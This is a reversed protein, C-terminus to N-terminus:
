SLAMRSNFLAIAFRSTARATGLANLMATRVYFLRRHDVFENRQVYTRVYQLSVPYTSIM